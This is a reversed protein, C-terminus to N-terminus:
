RPLLVVMMGVTVVIVIMMFLPSKIFNLFGLNIQHSAISIGVAMLLVSLAYLALTAMFFDGYIQIFTWYLFDMGAPFFYLGAFFMLLGVGALNIKGM